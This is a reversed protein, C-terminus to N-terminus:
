ARYASSPVAIALHVHEVSLIGVQRQTKECCVITARCRLRYTALLQVASDDDQRSRRRGDTRARDQRGTGGALYATRELSAARVLM